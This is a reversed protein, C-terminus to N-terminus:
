GRRCGVPGNGFGEALIAERGSDSLNATSDVPWRAALSPIMSDSFVGSVEREPAKEIGAAGVPLDATGSLGGPCRGLDAPFGAYVVPRDRFSRPAATYDM